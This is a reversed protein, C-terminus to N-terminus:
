IISVKELFEHNVCDAPFFVAEVTLRLLCECSIGLCIELNEECVASTADLTVEAEPQLLLQEDFLQKQKKM